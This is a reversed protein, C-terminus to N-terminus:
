EVLHLLYLLNAVRVSSNEHHVTRDSLGTVILGFGEFVGDFDTAHNDGLEVAVGLTTTGKGCYRCGFRWDHEETSTLM